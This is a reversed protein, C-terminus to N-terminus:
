ALDTWRGSRGALLTELIKAHFEREHSDEIEEVARNVISYVASLLYYLHTKSREKSNMLALIVRHNPNLRPQAGHKKCSFFTNRATAGLQVEDLFDDGLQFDHDQRLFQFERKMAELLQLSLDSM